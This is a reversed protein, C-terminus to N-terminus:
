FVNDNLRKLDHDRIKRNYSAGGACTSELM